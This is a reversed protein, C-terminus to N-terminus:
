MMEMLDHINLHTYRGEMKGDKWGTIRWIPPGSIGYIAELHTIRSHRLFHPRFKERVTVLGQIVRWAHVRSFNFIVDDDGFKDIFEQVVGALIGENALGPLSVPVTRPPHDQNKETYLNYFMLWDRSGKTIKRIQKKRLRRVIESVRSNSLYLVCFLARHELPAGGTAISLIEEPALVSKDGPADLIEEM